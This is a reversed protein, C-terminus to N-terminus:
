CKRRVQIMNWWRGSVQLLVLAALHPENLRFDRKNSSFSCYFTIQQICQKCQFCVIVRLRIINRCYVYCIVQRKKGRWELGGEGRESAHSGNNRFFSTHWGLDRSEETAAFPALLTILPNPYIVFSSMQHTEDPTHWRCFLCFSSSWSSILVFFIYNLGNLLTSISM